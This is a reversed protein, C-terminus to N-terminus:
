KTERTRKMKEKRGRSRERKTSKINTQQDGHQSIRMPNKNQNFTKNSMKRKQKKGNQNQHVLKAIVGYLNVCIKSAIHM